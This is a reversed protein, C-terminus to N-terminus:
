EGKTTGGEEAEGEEADEGKGKGETPATIKVKGKKSYTAPLIKSDSPLGLENILYSVGQHTLFYYSWGWNYAQNLCGRSKLSKVIMMVHLNPVTTVHQHFPLYADKKVVIVGERLLYKFITRKQEKSVLVM